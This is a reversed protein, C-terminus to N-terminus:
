LYSKKEIEDILTAAHKWGIVTGASGHQEVDGAYVVYGDKPAMEALACWKDLANFYDTTITAGSKIEVPILRAGVNILCDIEIRGNMDRWYYLRPEIGKNYYQKYFDAIVMCEFFAGRFHSKMLEEQSRIGLLSAALGTDYFYLKASKTLRKAFNKFHPRLFFIIYSAELISLWSDVTKRNIGTHAALDDINVQQGINGACLEMFTQLKRLNDVNVLQRIDRELYTHIYSPYIDQPAVQLEYLRPYGGLFLAQGSHDILNNKLLEHLSLPFLHLIAVRGALSQTVAQNMLFNQSGTLVFYGPRKKEDAEIQIYSLIEPVHQFEDLIIGNPNEYEALFGLPDRAIYDRMAANELTIYTHNKFYAKAITTKGAQRPGLLAIVPFKIFRAFTESLDRSYM